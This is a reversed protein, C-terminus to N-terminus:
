AAPGVGAREESRSRRQDRGRYTMLHGVIPILGAALVVDGVSIVTRLVPIPFVDGLWPLRTAETMLVHKGQIAGEASLGVAVMAEPDVPMGGNLGIVLANLALGCFVLFIGPLFRNIWIWVAVLAHSALLLGTGVAGVLLASYAAGIDVGLQLALGVFLLWSWALGAETVRHLRGGRAYGIVVAAVVVLATFAV